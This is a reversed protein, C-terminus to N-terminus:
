RAKTDYCLLVDDDRLYLCGQAIVPHPWANFRTREPQKLRGTEKYGSPTAEVLVVQGDGEGRVYLRDEAASISGKGVCRDSWQTAGTKLDICLLSEKNTGYVYDGIQVVGGHQSALDRKAYVEQASVGQGDAKLQLLVSGGGGPGLYSSFIYDGHAVPTSCNTPTKMKAYQWLVKGDKAAVGVLGKGLLQVYQKVGGAQSVIVSSYGAEGVEPAPARWIVEGTNKNLAVLTDKPGGPTCVLVDGDVLPSEAYAWRGRQGAFDKDLSKQWVIKGEPDLCALNADSGLVYIRDGAVTPTSFPGPYAPPGTRAVAGIRTRWLEKGDKVELAIAFEEAGKSGLLYLRGGVVSPTSYGGGM